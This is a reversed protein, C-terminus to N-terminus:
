QNEQAKRQQFRQVNLIARHQTGMITIDFDEATAGPPCEEALAYPGGYWHVNTNPEGTTWDIGDIGDTERILEGPQRVLARM